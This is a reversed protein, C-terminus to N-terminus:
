IQKRLQVLYETFGLEKYVKKAQENKYFVKIDIHKAKLKKCRKIAEKLLSKGIGKNRYEEKIYLGNLICTDNNIKKILIYGVIKNELYYALLIINKDNLMKNFHNTIIIDESISSDYKREFLMLETLLKDCENADTVSKVDKIIFIM